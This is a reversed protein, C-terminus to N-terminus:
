DYNLINQENKNIQITRLNWKRAVRFRKFRTFSALNMAQNM